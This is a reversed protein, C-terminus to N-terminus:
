APAWLYIMGHKFLGSQSVQKLAQFVKETAYDECLSNEFAVLFAYRQNVLDAADCGDKSFSNSLNRTAFTPHFPRGCSLRGCSGYVDVSPFCNKQAINRCYESNLKGM